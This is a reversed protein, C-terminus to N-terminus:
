PQQSKIHAAVKVDEKKIHNLLWGGISANVKGVLVVTPGEKTLQGSIDRVVQKFGEHYQKHNKYDPYKFQLQLKEEDSFHKATYDSLFKTTKEIEARGQGKSCAELLKNIAEILEKHQVDISANGTELEKSWTYAM